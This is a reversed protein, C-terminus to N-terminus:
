VSWSVNAWWAVGRSPWPTYLTSSPAGIFQLAFIANACYYCGRRIEGQPKLESIQIDRHIGGTEQHGPVRTRLHGGLRGWVRNTLIPMQAGHQPEKPTLTPITQVWWTSKGVPRDNECCTAALLSWSWGLLWCHSGLLLCFTGLVLRSSRLRWTPRRSESVSVIRITIHARM